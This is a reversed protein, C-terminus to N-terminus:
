SSQYKPKLTDPWCRFTNLPSSLSVKAIQSRYPRHFEHLYFAPKCKSHTGISVQLLEAMLSNAYHLMDNTLFLQSHRMGPRNKNLFIRPYWTYTHFPYKFQANIVQYGLVSQYHCKSQPLPRTRRAIRMLCCPNVSRSPPLLIVTILSHNTLMAPPECSKCELYRPLIQM